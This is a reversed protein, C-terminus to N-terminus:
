TSQNPNIEPTIEYDMRRLKIPTYHVLVAGQTQLPIITQYLSGASLYEPNRVSYDIDAENTLTLGFRIKRDSEYPLRITLFYMQTYKFLLERVIEDMDTSNTTLVTLSYDINVPIAKENYYENREKDFVAAVGFHMRTFNVRNQDISINEGRTLAVIPFTLEDNALQAALQIAAEPDTVRVFPHDTNTPNFSRQLDEVIARDYLYIM